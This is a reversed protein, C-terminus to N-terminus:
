PAAIEERLWMRYKICDILIFFITILGLTLARIWQLYSFDIKIVLPLFGVCAIGILASVEWIIIKKFSSKDITPANRAEIIDWALYTFFFISYVVLIRIMEPERSASETSSSIHIFSYSIYFMIVYSIGLLFMWWTFNKTFYVYIFDCLYFLATIVLLVMKLSASQGYLHKESDLAYEIIFYIVNGLVAPYLMELLLKKLLSNNIARADM